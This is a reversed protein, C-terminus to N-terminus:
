MSMWCVFRWSLLVCLFHLFEPVWSFIFSLALVLGNFVLFDRKKKNLRVISLKVSERCKCCSLELFLVSYDLAWHVELLSLCLNFLHSCCCLMEWTGIEDQIYTFVGLAAWLEPLHKLSKRGLILIFGELLFCNNFSLLWKKIKIHLSQVALVVPGASPWPCKKSKVWFFM